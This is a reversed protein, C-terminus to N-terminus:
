DDYSGALKNAHWAPFTLHRVYISDSQQHLVTNYNSRM